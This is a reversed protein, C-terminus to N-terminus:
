RVLHVRVHRTNHDIEFPEHLLSAMTTGNRAYTLLAVTTGTEAVHLSSGPPLTRLPAVRGSSQRTRFVRVQLQRVCYKSVEEGDLAVMHSRANAFATCFRVLRLLLLEVVCTCGFWSTSMCISRDHYSHVSRLRVPREISILRESVRAGLQTQTAGTRTM